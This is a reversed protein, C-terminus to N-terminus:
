IPHQPVGAAREAKTVAGDGDEDMALFAELLETRLAATVAEEDEIEYDSSTRGVMEM